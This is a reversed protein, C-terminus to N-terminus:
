ETPDLGATSGGAKAGGAAEAEKAGGAAAGAKAKDKEQGGQPFSPRLGSLPSAARKKKKVAERIEKVIEGSTKVAWSLEAKKMGETEIGLTEGRKFELPNVVVYEDNGIRELNHARSRAQEPTLRVKRGPMVPLSREMVEVQEYGMKVGRRNKEKMGM